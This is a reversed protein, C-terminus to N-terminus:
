LEHPDPWVNKNIRAALLASICANKTAEMMTEHFGPTDRTIEGSLVQKRFALYSQRYKIYEAIASDFETPTM